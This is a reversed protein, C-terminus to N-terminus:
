KFPDLSDEKETEEIKKRLLLRGSPVGFFFRESLVTDFVFVSEGDRIDLLLTAHAGRDAILSGLIVAERHSYLRPVSTRTEEKTWIIQVPEKLAELFENNTLAGVDAIDRVSVVKVTKGDQHFQILPKDGISLKGHGDTARTVDLVRVLGKGDPSLFVDSPFSWWGSTTWAIEFEGRPTIRYCCGSPMDEKEEGKPPTMVFFHQAGPHAIVFPYPDVPTSARSDTVLIVLPALALILKASM